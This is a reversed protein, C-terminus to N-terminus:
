KWLFVGKDFMHLVQFSIYSKWLAEYKGFARTPVTIARQWKKESRMLELSVM